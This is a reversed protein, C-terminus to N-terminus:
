GRGSRDNWFITKFAVRIAVIAAYVAVSGLVFIEVWFRTPSGDITSGYSGKGSRLASIIWSVSGVLITLTVLNMTLRPHRAFFGDEISHQDM